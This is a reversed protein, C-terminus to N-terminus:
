CINRGGMHETALIAQNKCYFGSNFIEIERKGNSKEDYKSVIEGM